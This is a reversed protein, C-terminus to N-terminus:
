SAIRGRDGLGGADAGGEIPERMFREQATFIAEILEPAALTRPFSVGCRALAALIRPPVSGGRLNIEELQTLLGDLQCLVDRRRIRREEEEEKWSLRPVARNRPSTGM